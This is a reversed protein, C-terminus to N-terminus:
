FKCVFCQMCGFKVKFFTYFVVVRQPINTMEASADIFAMVKTLLLISHAVM